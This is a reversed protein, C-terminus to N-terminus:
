AGAASVDCVPIAAALVDLAVALQNASGEWARIRGASSEHLSELVSVYSTIGFGEAEGAVAQRVILEVRHLPLDVSELRDVWARCFRVADEWQAFVAGQRPLLDIYCALSPIESDDEDNAPQDPDSGAQQAAHPEWVDCKSTWLPSGAGNVQALFRALAPFAVAESVEEIRLPNQRLDVFGPWLAEIVPAGGGIEVEWDAEM